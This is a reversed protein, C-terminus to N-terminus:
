QVFEGEDETRGSWVTLAYKTGVTIPLSEHPHTVNGPWALIDGVSTTKNTLGQRPFNLEGGGYYDNLKISFSVLSMDNHIPLDIQSGEAYKIVFVDRLGHMKLKDFYGECIPVLEDYFLRRFGRIFSQDALQNLRIEQGPFKDAPLAQWNGYAECAAILDTCWTEPVLGSLKIIDKSEPKLALWDQDYSNNDKRQGLPRMSGRLYCDYFNEFNKKDEVGGCGHVVCSTANTSVNVVQGWDNIDRENGPLCFFLYSETDLKVTQDVFISETAMLYKKQLFLQDDDSATLTEEEDYSQLFDELALQSGIYCGSNLFRQQTDSAPFKDALKKDPWCNVEAAFVIETCFEYYRRLIEDADAAFFTDYGDVFLVVDEPPLDKIAERMLLIKQGGGPGNPMDGGQWTVGEGLNIVNVREDNLIKYAENPDTAVTFIHLDVEPWIDFQETASDDFAGEEPALLNESFAASKLEEGLQPLAGSPFQPHFGLVAPVIEDAPILGTKAADLMAQAAQPTIYYACTWYYYGGTELQDDIKVIDGSMHKKALWVFDYDGCGNLKEQWDPDVIDVDDELVVVPEDLSTCKEWIKIHSLVCGVEGRTLRRNSYPDRWGANAFYPQISDPTVALGDVAEVIEADPFRAFMRGRKDIDRELNIVYKKIM